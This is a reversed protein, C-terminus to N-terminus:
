AAEFKSACSTSTDAGACSAQSNIRGQDKKEEKQVRM